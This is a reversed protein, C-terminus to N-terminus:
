KNDLNYYLRNILTLAKGRSEDNVAIGMVLKKFKEVEERNSCVCCSAFMGWSLSDANMLLYFFQEASLEFVFSGNMIKFADKDNDEKCFLHFSGQADQGYMCLIDYAKNDEFFKFRTLSEGLVRKTVVVEEKPFYKQEKKLEGIAIAKLRLPLYPRDTRVVNFGNAMLQKRVEEISSM